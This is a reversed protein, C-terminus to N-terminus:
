TERLEIALLEADGTATDNTTDREIRMRFTDGAVISDLNTGKPVAVSLTLPQGLTAPVTSATIAQVPAYSDSDIDTASDMREFLISWGLTGTTATTLSAVVFVTVGTTNAYNQPMIGTFVAAETTTADFQLLPHGNRLSLTAYNSAPPENQYPTFVCLTDGSSM